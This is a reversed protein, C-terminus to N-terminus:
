SVAKALEASQLSPCFDNVCQRYPAQNLSRLQADDLGTVLLRTSEGPLLTILQRNVTASPNLKEPFFCLDRVLTRATVHLSHGGEIPKIRLDLEPEPYPIDYDRGYFWMGREGGADAVLVEGPSGMEFKPLDIRHTARGNLRVEISVQELVDGGLTMRRVEVTTNWVQEHDNHLYVALAEPEDGIPVPATPMVTVLRPRFFQRTAYWLLKPRGEGDLASWSSVPWCDNFQWYLSGGNWPSLARFWECGLTLARAQNLSALFWQGEFDEPVRFSDRLRDLALQQGDEQKNHHIMSDSLWTRQDEPVADILTPWTPPGHFGFESAFRPYHALYNRYDGAGNWVDWIHRNGYENANPDRDIDGSYPSGPWYPTEPTLEGVLRPFLDLYYGAGWGIEDQERLAVWEPGWCYTGWINENCGNWLTLSAHSALRAINDRAEAEISAWFDPTEPYCACACCFDQWVMVGMEDCVDYFTDDEYIGGGWIRLMNMSAGAALEIRHRYRAADVRHPFCDDPIWNAGKCYVRQGNVRLHFTEGQGLGKFAETDPTTVLEVTKLGIKRTSTDLVGGADDLLEVRLEYLPQQGYGRPWWLEPRDIELSQTEGLPGCQSLVPEGDPGNLRMLVTVGQGVEGGAAQTDIHVALEARHQDASVVVPRVDAIRAVTWRELGISRWIGSTVLAPGWDWGFNCAMKRIMHHPWQPNSGSGVAPLRPHDERKAVIHKMPSAFTIELTNRGVRIAERLDFRWRRHMNDVRGVVEGNLVVMALTDLGDCVLDLREDAALGQEHEFTCAYRWDTWGIWDMERENRDHYPDPIVGAQVLDTHVCGPVTAAFAKGQVADPTRSEDGIARVSWSVDSLPSFKLM